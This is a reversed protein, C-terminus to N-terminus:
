IIYNDFFTSSTQKIRKEQKNKDFKNGFSIHYNYTAIMNAPTDRM